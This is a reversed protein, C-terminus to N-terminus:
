RKLPLVHQIHIGTDNNRRIRSRITEPKITGPELCFESKTKDIMNQLCKRPLKHHGTSRRNNREHLIDEAVKTICDQVLQLYKMINENSQKTNSRVNTQNSDNTNELNNSTDDSLPSVEDMEAVKNADLATFPLQVESSLLGNRETLLSM